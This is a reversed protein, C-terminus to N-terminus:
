LLRGIRITSLEAFAARREALTDTSAHWVLMEHNFFGGVFIPIDTDASPATVPQAAIGIPITVAGSGGPNHAVLYGSVRAVVQYKAITVGSAVTGHDTIVPMEGAWLQAPEFTGVSEIGGVLDNHSFVTM